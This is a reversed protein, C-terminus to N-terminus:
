FTPLWDASFTAAITSIGAVGLGNALWQVKSNNDSLSPTTICNSSIFNTIADATKSCFSFFPSNCLYHSILQQIPLEFTCIM